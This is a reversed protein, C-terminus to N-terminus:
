SMRESATNRRVCEMLQCQIRALSRYISQPKRGLRAAIDKVVVNQFYKLKIMSYDQKRIKNLCNQLATLYTDTINVNDGSEYENRISEMANDDFLIIRNKSNNRRFEKVRYFAVKRAWALFDTGSEYNNFHEWLYRTTDQMVDDADDFNGILNMIYAYIKRQNSSLLYLYENMRQPNDNEVM